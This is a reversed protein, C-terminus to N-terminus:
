HGALIAAIEPAAQAYIALVGIAAEANDILSRANPRIAFGIVYKHWPGM